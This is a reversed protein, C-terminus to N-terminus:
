VGKRNRYNDGGAPFDSPGDAEKLSILFDMLSAGLTRALARKTGTASSRVRRDWGARASRAQQSLLCINGFEHPLNM